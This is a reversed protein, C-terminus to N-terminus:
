RAVSEKQEKERNCKVRNNKNKKAKKKEIIHKKGNRSCKSNRM